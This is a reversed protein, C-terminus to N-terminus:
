RRERVVLVFPALIEEFPLADDADLFDMGAPWPEDAGEQREPPALSLAEALLGSWDPLAVGERLRVPGLASRVKDPDLGDWALRRQFRDQDGGGLAQSWAELREDVLDADGGEAPVFDEGLREDLTSAREVIKVLDQEAMPEIQKM